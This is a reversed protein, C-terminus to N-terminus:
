KQLHGLRYLRCFRQRSVRAQYARRRDGIASRQRTERGAIDDALATRYAEWWEASLLPLPLPVRVTGRRFASRWVGHRDRFRHTYPPLQSSRRKM